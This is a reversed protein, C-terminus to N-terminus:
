GAHNEVRRQDAQLRVLNKHLKANRQQAEILDLLPYTDERTPEDGRMTRALLERYLEQMKVKNIAMLEGLGVELAALPDAGMMEIAVDSLKADKMKSMEKQDEPDAHKKVKRTKRLVYGHMSYGAKGAIVAVVQRTM